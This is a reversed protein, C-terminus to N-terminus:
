FFFHSKYTCIEENNKFIDFLYAGLIGNKKLLIFKVFDIHKYVVAISLANRGNQDLQDVNIRERLYFYRTINELISAYPGTYGYQEEKTSDDSKTKLYLLIQLISNTSIIEINKISYNKKDWYEIIM